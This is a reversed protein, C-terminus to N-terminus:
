CFPFPSVPNENEMLRNYIFLSQNLFQLGPSDFWCGERFCSVTEGGSCLGEVLQTSMLLGEISSVALSM